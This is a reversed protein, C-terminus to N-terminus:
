RSDACHEQAQTFVPDASLLRRAKQKDDDTLFECHPDEVDFEVGNELKCSLKWCHLYMRPVVEQDEFLPSYTADGVIAHGATMCHLRLQHRRGTHPLLLVKSVGDGESLSYFRTLCQRGEEVEGVSADAPQQVAKMEFGETPAIRWTWEGQGTLRGRVVAVYAKRIKRERFVDCFMRTYSKQFSCILLGSTAYDLQSPYQVRGWKGTTV